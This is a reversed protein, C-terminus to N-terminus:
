KETLTWEPTWDDRAKGEEKAIRRLYAASVYDEPLTEFLRKADDSAGKQFLELAQLYSRLKEPSRRLVHQEELPEYVAVGSSKGLVRVTGVPRCPQTGNLMQYTRESILIPTGFSKNAGELRSAINAADGIVTYSFRAISGFNGVSVQGTNLGIRTKVTVKYESEFVAQLRTLERQIELAAAVGCAAHDPLAVPANWFAVVADGVYKDVTGGHRLIVDTVATLYTNLLPVLQGPGISESISTFGAIDSFFITLERREGGLELQRPDEVIRDIISPSVYYRFAEKIVRKHRGESGFLFALSALLSLAM